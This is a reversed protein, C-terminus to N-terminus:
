PLVLCTPTAEASAWEPWALPPTKSWRVAPTDNGARCHWRRVDAITVHLQFETGIPHSEKQRKGMFLSLQAPM